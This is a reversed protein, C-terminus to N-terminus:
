FPTNKSKKASAKKAKRKAKKPAAAQKEPKEATKAPAIKYHGADVRTIEALKKGTSSFWVHINQPNVGLQTAIDKVRAGTEGAADLIALIQEKLAGRRGRKRSGKRGAKSGKAAPVKLTATASAAIKGRSLALLDAEISAIQSLLNEKKETLELLKRLVKTNIQTVDMVPKFYDRLSPVNLVFDLTQKEM